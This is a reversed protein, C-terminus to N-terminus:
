EGSLMALAVIQQLFNQPNIESPGSMIVLVAYGNRFIGYARGRGLVGGPPSFTFSIESMLGLSLSGRVEAGSSGETWTPTTTNISEMLNPPLVSSLKEEIWLDKSEIQNEMKWYYCGFTLGLSNPQGALAGSEETMVGEVLPAIEAPLYGFEIGVPELIYAPGQDGAPIISTLVAVMFLGM